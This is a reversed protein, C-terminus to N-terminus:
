SRLMWFSYLFYYVATYFFGDYFIIIEYFLRRVEVLYEEEDDFDKANLKKECKGSGSFKKGGEFLIDKMLCALIMGTTTRGKGM